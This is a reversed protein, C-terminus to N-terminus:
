SLKDVGRRRLDEVFAAAPAEGLAREEGTDPRYLVAGNEAVVREFLDFRDFVTKLDALERGTVLILKRGSAKLAALADITPKDVHGHHAVTGDYDTCLALYRM